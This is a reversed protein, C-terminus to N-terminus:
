IRPSPRPPKRVQWHAILIGLILSIGFVTLQLARYNPTTPDMLGAALVSAVSYIVWGAVSFVTVFILYAAIPKTAPHKAWMVYPIALILFVVWAAIEHTLNPM